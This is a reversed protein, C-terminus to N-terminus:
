FSRRRRQDVLFLLGGLLAALAFPLFWIMSDNNASAPGTSTSTPPLTPARTPAPPTGPAVVAVSATGDSCISTESVVICGNGQATGPTGEDSVAPTATGQLTVTHTVGPNSAPVTIGSVGQINALTCAGWSCVITPPTPNVYWSPLNGLLVLYNDAEPGNGFVITVTLKLATGTGAAVQSKDWASTTTVSDQLYTRFDFDLPHAHLVWSPTSIWAAGRSYADTDSGSAWINAGGGANFVIAYMTGATVSYPSGFTFSVWAATTASYPVLTTGSTALATGTTVPTGAGDTPYISLSMSGGGPNNLSAVWLDVRSLPGSQGATFTQALEGSVNSNPTTNSQDLYSPIVYALTVGPLLGLLLFGACLALAFARRTM